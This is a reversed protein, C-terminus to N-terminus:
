RTATTRTASVTPSRRPTPTCPTSSTGITARPGTSGSGPEEKPRHVMFQLAITRRGQRPDYANVRAYHNPYAKRCNNVEMVVASADELDFMPLGWMDWLSNRPHVDDTFEISVSWKNDLAYQM